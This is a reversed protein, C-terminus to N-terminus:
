YLICEATAIYNFMVCMVLICGGSASIKNSSENSAM